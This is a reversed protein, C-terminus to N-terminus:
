DEIEPKHKTVTKLFNVMLATVFIGVLISLTYLLPNSSFPIAMVTALATEHVTGFAANLACGCMTGVMISPIVRLPDAVAFPITGETIGVCGMIAATRGNEIESLSYLKKGGLLTAVFMGLPPIGIAMLMATSAQYGGSTFAAMGFAYAVKNVPGGMDFAMMAGLIVALIVANADSMGTLWNTLSQTAAAIPSGFVYIMVFGVVLTTLFPIILLSKVTVLRTPMSMKKLWRAFYGVLVGVLMGGLFGTGMTNAVTGVIFAPALGPRDAISYAVYAAIIVPIFGLGTQGLLRMNGWIDSTENWVNEGGVIVAISTLLGAATVLPIMYSVGTQFHGALRKAGGKYEM